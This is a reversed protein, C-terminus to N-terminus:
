IVAEEAIRTAELIRKELEAVYPSIENENLGPPVTLPEGFYLAIKAFPKPLFMKDWSRFVWTRSAACASPWIAVGTKSAITIAGEKAIHRPGKPGDPTICIHSGGELKAVLDSVAQRGGRTSSGSVSQLGLLRTAFAVIRGDSHGSILTCIRPVPSGSASLLAHRAAIAMFLQCGHWFVIIKPGSSTALLEPNAALGLRKWRLTFNVLLLITVALLGLLQAKVRSFLDRELISRVYTPLM